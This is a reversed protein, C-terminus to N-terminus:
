RRRRSTKTCHRRRPRISASSARLLGKSSSSRQEPVCNSGDATSASRRTIAASAAGGTWSCSPVGSRGATARASPRRGIAQRNSCGPARAARSSNRPVVSMRDTIGSCGEIANSRGASGAYTPARTRQRRFEAIRRATTTYPTSARRSQSTEMARIASTYPCVPLGAAAAPMSTAERATGPMTNRKVPAAISRM